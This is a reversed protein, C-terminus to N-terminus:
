EEAYDWDDAYNRLNYGEALAEGALDISELALRRLFPHLQGSKRFQGISLAAALTREVLLPESGTKQFFDATLLLRRAIKEIHPTVLEQCFKKLLSELANARGLPAVKTELAQFEEAFDCVRSNMLFWGEFYEDDLLQASEALLRPSAAISELDWGDFAPLYPAPALDIGRFIGRGVYFQAPLHTMQEGSQCLADKVLVIAYETSIELLREEAVQENFLTEYKDRRLDRYGYADCLGYADNIQLMLLAVGDGATQRTILLSRNGTGDVLGLYAAHFPLEAVPISVAPKVGLFRLRKISREAIHQLDQAPQEQLFCYLAALAEASRVKGLAQLAEGIIVREDFGLLVELLSVLEPAAVTPLVRVIGIQVETSLQLFEEMVWVLGEDGKALLKPLTLQLSGGLGHLFAAFPPATVDVGYGELAALLAAKGEEELDKRQLTMRILQELWNDEEFFDLLYAYKSILEGNKERWLRRVLPSLARRGSKQLKIGIDELEGVTIDEKKLSELLRIIDHRERLSKDVKKPQQLPATKMIPKRTARL